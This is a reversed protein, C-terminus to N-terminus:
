HRHWDRFADLLRGRAEPSIDAEDVRGVETITRRIQELYTECGPCLSMHEEFRATDPSPLAGEVYETVLEVFERCTMSM